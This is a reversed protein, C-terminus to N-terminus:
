EWRRRPLDFVRMNKLSEAREIYKKHYTEYNEFLGTALCFYACVGFVLVDQHVDPLFTLDDFMSTFTQYTEYKVVYIGPSPLVLKQNIIKYKVPQNNQTVSVFRIRNPFNMLPYKADTYEIQKEAIVPIYNTCLEQIAFKCLKYMRNINPNELSYDETANNSGRLIDCENDFGLLNCAEILIHLIKM